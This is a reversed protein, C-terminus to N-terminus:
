ISFDLDTIEFGDIESWVRIMNSLAEENLSKVCDRVLIVKFGRELFGNVAFSVCIDGSVGYVVFTDIGDGKLIDVIRNTNPNGAFLDFKDKRITINRNNPLYDLGMNISWDIIYPDKPDTEEVYLAGDTDVMCHPPFTDSYDPDDSLEESNEYHWDMTNLVRIRNNEAFKTIEDLKPKIEEAGGVYLSGDPNMFDKQTDINVFVTKNINIVKM